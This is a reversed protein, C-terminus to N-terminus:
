VNHKSFYKFRDHSYTEENLVNWYFLDAFEEKMVEIM